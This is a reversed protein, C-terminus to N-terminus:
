NADGVIVDYKKKNLALAHDDVSDIEIWPDSFPVSQIKIDKSILETLLDTMYANDFNKGNLTQDGENCARLLKRMTNSGNEDLYVLGIFQGQIEDLSTPKQGLNLINGYSDVKFTEADDLPNDLREEWYNKWNSDSAVCINENCEILKALVREHYLIDTYAIVVEGDLYDEACFLSKVMNTTDFEPNHVEILKNEGIIDDLKERKYGTVIIKKSFNFRNVVDLHTKILPSGQYDVM